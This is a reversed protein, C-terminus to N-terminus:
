GRIVGGNWKSSSQTAFCYAIISRQHTPQHLSMLEQQELAPSRKASADTVRAVLSCRPLSLAHSFAFALPRVTPRIAFLQCSCPIAFLNLFLLLLEFPSEVSSSNSNSIAVDPYAVRAAMKAASLQFPSNGPVIQGYKCKCGCQRM